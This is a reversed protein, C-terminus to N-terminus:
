KIIKITKIKEANEFVSIFYVGTSLENLDYMKISNIGTELKLNQLQKLEQGLSNTLVLKAEKLPLETNISITLENNFPIPFASVMAVSEVNSNISTLTTYANYRKLLASVVPLLSWSTMGNQNMLVSISIDKTPFYWSSAAYVLDGGHGFAEIGLFTNRMLGLGYKGGQSGSANVLTKVELMMAPSLIDGRMYTRMWRTIDTPTSYYGGAAGAASNLSLYNYYFNHADDLIGDGNLDMWVHAVPNTYTEFSPIGITSYGYQDYFRNRIEAYYPNGTAEEIIMGLLFYNTNCYSWASGPTSIPPQIFNTILDFASWSFSQNSMLAPQCAPNNLVDYLGSQHRLLQRITINPNIYQITDLWQHLSDDLSLVGQDTLQLVCASTITKTVSGILYADSTTVNVNSASIGSAGAWISTDPFQIAASLSKVNMVTKMSDLTVSLLSDLTPYNSQAKTLNINVIFIFGSLFLYIKAKM